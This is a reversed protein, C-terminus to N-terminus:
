MSHLIDPYHAFTVNVLTKMAIIITLMVLSIYVYQFCLFLYKPLQSECVGDTLSTCDNGYDLM